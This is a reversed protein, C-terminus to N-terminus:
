TETLGRNNLPRQSTELWIGQVLVGFMLIELKPRTTPKPSDATFLALDDECCQKQPLQKQLEELAGHGKM